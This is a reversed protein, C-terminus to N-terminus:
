PRYYADLGMGRLVDYDQLRAAGIKRIPIKGLLTQGQEAEGMRIFADVLEDRVSQEVRPHVVMPHPPVKETRYLIRLQDRIEPAQRSLTKQVGGGAAAHGTLVNLYVSDHSRVYREQIRINFKRDFAARPILAAGLANPAPFAVVKGDLEAVSRISSDKRIVVIGFLQAEIDKLVPQYGQKRNAVLLHYPNMYAVDYIGAAFEREFDPISSAARYQLRIGSRRELEDLIPQWILVIQRPSFQPVVGLTYTKDTALSLTSSLLLGLLICVRAIIM